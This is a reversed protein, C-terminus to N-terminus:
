KKTFKNKILITLRFLFYYLLFLFIFPYVVGLAALACSNSLDIKPYKTGFYIALVLWYIICGIFYILM